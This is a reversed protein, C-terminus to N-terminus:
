DLRIGLLSNEPKDDSLERVTAKKLEDKSIISNFEDGELDNSNMMCIYQCGNKECYANAEKLGIAIQRPDTADFIASDHVLFNMNRKCIQQQNLMTLDFAFVRMKRIGSSDDCPIKSWISFGLRRGEDNLNINLEGPKEYLKRTLNSFFTKAANRIEDLQRYTAEADESLAKEEEKIQEKAVGSERLRALCNEKIQLEALKDQYDKIIMSYQDLARSTNLIQLLRQREKEADRIAIELESNLDQLSEIQEEFYTRRNLSVRRHFDCVEELTKTLKEPFILGADHYIKDVSGCSDKITQLTKEAAELRYNNASRQNHLKSIQKTLADAEKQIQEYAPEVNYNDLSNKLNDLAHRIMKCQGELKLIDDGWRSAELKAARAITEADAKRSKLENLKAIYDWNLGFLYAISMEVRFGIKDIPKKENEYCIRIFYNILEEYTPYSKDNSHATPIGFFEQGLFTRWSRVSIHTSDDFPLYGDNPLSWSSINGCIKVIDLENLSRSIKVRVGKITAELTFEWGELHKKWLDSHPDPDGGFCFDIIKLLTTKGLSNRTKDNGSTAAKKAVIINLGEHFKIEKFSPKNATISHLM